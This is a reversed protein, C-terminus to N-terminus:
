FVKSISKFGEEEMWELGNRTLSLTLNNEKAFEVLDKVALRASERGIRSAIIQQPNIFRSLTTNNENPSLQVDM